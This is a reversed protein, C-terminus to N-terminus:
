TGKVDGGGRLALTGGAPAQRELGFRLINRAANIDRDHSVGCSSCEWSRMGLAGIGKPSSSPIVGCCSCVQSSYREDVEVYM